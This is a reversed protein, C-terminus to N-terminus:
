LSTVIGPDAQRAGLGRRDISAICNLCLTYFVITDTSLHAFSSVKKKFAAVESAPVSCEFVSLNIRTGYTSLYRSLRLRRRDSVIDYAVVLFTSKM